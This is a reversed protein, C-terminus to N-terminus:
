AAFSGINLTKGNFIEEKKKLFLFLVFVFRDPSISIELTKCWLV